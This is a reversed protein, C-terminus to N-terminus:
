GNYTMAQIYAGPAVEIEKEEIVFEIEVIKPGGVAVQEHEPLFPPTVLKQKVRPLDAIDAQVGVEYGELGAANSYQSLVSGTILLSFIFLSTTILRLKFM